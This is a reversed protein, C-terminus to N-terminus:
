RRKPKAEAERVSSPTRAPKEGRPSLPFGRLARFTTLVTERLPIVGPTGLRQGGGM